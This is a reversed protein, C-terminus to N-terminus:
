LAAHRELCVPDLPDSPDVGSSGLVQQVFAPDQFMAAMDTGAGAPAGRARARRPSGSGPSMSMALAAAYGRRRGRRRRRGHRRRCARRAPTPETAAAAQQHAPAGPTVAPAAVDPTVLSPDPSRRCRSRQRPLLRPREVAGEAPADSMPADTTAPAAGWRGGGGGGRRQGRRGQRRRRPRRPGRQRAREEEM